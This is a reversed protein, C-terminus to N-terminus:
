GRKMFQLVGIVTGIIGSAWKLIKISTKIEAMEQVLGPKGNGNVQANLKSLLADVVEKQHQEISQVTLLIKHREIDRDNNLQESSM